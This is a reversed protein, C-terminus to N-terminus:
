TLKGLSSDVALRELKKHKKKNHKGRKGTREETGPENGKEKAATEIVRYEVKSKGTGDFGVLRVSSVFPFFTGRCIQMSRVRDVPVEQCSEVGM